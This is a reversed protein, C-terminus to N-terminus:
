LTNSLKILGEKEAKLTALMTELRAQHAENSQLQQQVLQKAKDVGKPPETEEKQKRDYRPSNDSSSSSSSSSDSESSSSSSSSVNEKSKPAKAKRIASTKAKPTKVKM